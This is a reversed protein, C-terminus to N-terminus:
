VLFNKMKMVSYLDHFKSIYEYQIGDHHSNAIRPLGKPEISIQDYLNRYNHLWAKMDSTENFNNIISQCIINTEIFDSKNIVM